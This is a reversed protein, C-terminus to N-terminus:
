MLMKRAIGHAMYIPYNALMALNNYDTTSITSPNNAGVIAARTDKYYPTFKTIISTNPNGMNAPDEPSAFKYSRGAPAGYMTPSILSPVNFTTGGTFKDVTTEQDSTASVYDPLDYIKGNGRNFMSQIARSDRPMGHKLKFTASMEVPFDDPGLEDSFEFSVDECILNGIVAIPNLPNGIMLHWNGVPEGTLLARMGNVSPYTTNKIIESKFMNEMNAGVNKFIETGKEAKEGNFLDISTGFLKNIGGEIVNGLGAFVTGLVNGLKSTITNFDFNGSEDTLSDKVGSIVSNVAGDEGFIKGKAMKEMFSTGYKGVAWPYGQQQINFRYGGGWFMANASGMMLCNSLIDLMAAKPNIGGIEKAVYTCKISLSEHTFTIGQKRKQVEMIANVPGQIKNTLPGDNYPDAQANTLYQINAVNEDYGNKNTAFGLLKSFGVYKDGVAYMGKNFFDNVWSTNTSMNKGHIMKDIMETSNTGANGNVEHIKSELKEWAVGTSFKLLEKLSNGSDGGFYTVVTSIPSFTANADNLNPDGNEDFMGYFELNDMCPTSYKRLTILRNNPIVNWWKCFVFDQFSYPTRGWSDNSSFKIINTTTPASVSLVDNMANEQEQSTVSLDYFRRQDRIDVYLNPHSQGSFTVTGDSITPNVRLGGALLTISYPNMLSSLGYFDKDTEERATGKGIYTIADGGNQSDKMSLKPGIENADGALGKAEAEAILEDMMSQKIKFKRDAYASCATDTSFPVVAVFSRGSSAADGTKSSSASVYGDIRWIRPDWPRSATSKIANKIPNEESSQQPEAEEERESASSDEGASSDLEANAPISTEEAEEFAALVAPVEEGSNKLTEIYDQIYALQQEESWDNSNKRIVAGLRSDGYKTQIIYQIADEINESGFQKELELSENGAYSYSAVDYYEYSTSANEGKGSTKTANIAKLSIASNTTAGSSINKLRSGASSITAPSLTGGNITDSM